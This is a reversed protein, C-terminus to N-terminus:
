QKVFSYVQRTVGESIQVTYMGTSWKAVPIYMVPESTVKQKLLLKGRADYIAVQHQKTSNFHIQLVDKVPNPYVSALATTEKKKVQVISSYEFRGDADVQKLRYFNNGTLPQQDIYDYKNEPSAPVRGIATYDLGDGSREVDFYRNNMEHETVWHLVITNGAANGTFSIWTVPTAVLDKILQVNNTNVQISYGIPLNTTAFSGSITGTTLDIITYIGNPVTGTETVTLTGALTLNSNRILQDYGTGAATGDQMEIQLTSNASFPQLGNLTLLGPSLGPAFSGDNVYTVAGLSVTGLGKFIAGTNNSFGTLYFTTTGTSTKTVTGNNIFTGFSTSNEMANNGSITIAGNNTLTTANAYFGIDGDLWDIHGNNILPAAILKGSATTMTLTRGTENTFPRAVVGSNWTTNGHIILAGPGNYHGDISFDYNITLDGPGAVTHSTNTSFILSAPFSLDIALNLESLNTFTGTGTITGANYNFENQNTYSGGNFVIAGTNTVEYLTSVSGANLNITGYNFIGSSFNLDTAGTSTKTITGNNVLSAGGSFNQMTNNGSITLTGNNTFTHISNGFYWPGDQWDINGNNTISCGIGKNGTTYMTVSAGTNFFATGTNSANGITGSEWLLTGNVILDEGPGDVIYLSLDVILTAGASVVVQDATLNLNVTITDGPLITTEGDDPGPADPATVWDTGDFRQWSIANTWNGNGASRYDGTTQATVAIHLLLSCCIVSGFTFIQKM